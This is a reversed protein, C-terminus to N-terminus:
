SSNNNLKQLIILLMSSSLISSMIMVKCIRINWNSNLMILHTVMFICTREVARLPRRFILSSELDTTM